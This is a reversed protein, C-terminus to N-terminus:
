KNGDKLIRERIQSIEVINTSDYALSSDFSSLAEDYMELAKFAKGRNLWTLADSRHYSLASDYCSIELEFKGLLGYSAGKNSWATAHSNKYKITSDYSNIAEHFMDM